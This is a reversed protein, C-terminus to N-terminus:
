GVRNDAHRQTAALSELAAEVVQHAETAADVIAVHREVLAALWRLLRAYKEPECRVMAALIEPPRALIKEVRGLLEWDRAARDVFSNPGDPRRYPAAAIAPLIEPM